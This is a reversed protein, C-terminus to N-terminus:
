IESQYRNPHLWGIPKRYSSEISFILPTDAYRKQWHVIAHMVERIDDYVGRHVHLPTFTGPKITEKKCILTHYQTHANTPQM